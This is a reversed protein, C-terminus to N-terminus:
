RSTARRSSSVDPMSMDMAMIRPTDDRRDVRGKVVVIADEAIYQGIVEYTNPFFLTEVAAPWTRWPPRRGPRARSPSGASCAPSSAPSPSSRATPCRARRPCRPSPPTPRRRRPRAGPRVAPPRLRVPRADGARLRAHRAQGVGSDGIARCARHRQRHRADGFGAGFLDFQGVAEKRKVDAYADIADAHVALLGKRTHDMSDFAGAKILSEITRKNCVVADVKSLFDHFDTYTARRRRPVAHDVRGRQAGVNRVAALGFRIDKGVPTFPGASNNVDPPLVKIGMRRCEALYLAMKDKDDGVCTLLGAM